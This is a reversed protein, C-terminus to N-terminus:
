YKWYPIIKWQNIICSLSFIWICINCKWFNCYFPIKVTVTTDSGRLSSGPRQGYKQSKAMVWHKGSNKPKVNNVGQTSKPKGFFYSRTRLFILFNFFPLLLEWFFSNFFFHLFFYFSFVVGLKKFHTQNKIYFHMIIILLSCTLNSSPHPIYCENRGVM